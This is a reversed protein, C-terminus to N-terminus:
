AATQARVGVAAPGGAPIGGLTFTVSVGVPGGNVTVTSSPAWYGSGPASVVYAYTGNALNFSITKGNTSITSGGVTVQWSTHNPLGSETFTVKYKVLTFHTTVSAVGSVTLTGSTVNQSYGPVNAVSYSYTGNPFKYKISNTSSTLTQGAVTTTWNTGKPLGTEYMTVANLVLTFKATLSIGTGSLTFSGTAVRSYNAVNNVHYTYTGNPLTFKESTLNTAYTSAGITVSWNTGPPLGTEKFTVTYVVQTFTHAITKPGGNVTVSGSTPSTRWGSVTPLTWAYTGNPENFTISSSTTSMTVAGLKVSWSVGAGLGTETFTVAYTVESFTVPVNVPGGSVM